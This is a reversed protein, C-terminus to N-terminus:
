LRANNPQHTPLSAQCPGYAVASFGQRSRSRAIRPNVRRSRYRRHDQRSRLDFTPQPRDDMPETNQPKICRLRAPGITQRLGLRHFVL